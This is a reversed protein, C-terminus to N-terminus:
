EYIFLTELNVTSSSYHKDFTDKANKGLSESEEPSVTSIMKVIELASQCVIVDIGNKFETGEIVHPTTIICCGLRAGELLKNKFGSGYFIPLVLFQTRLLENTIDRVRGLIKVNSGVPIRFNSSGRGFLLGSTSINGKALEALFYRMGEANPSYEFNGYSVWEYDYTNRKRYEVSEVSRIRGLIKRGPAAFQFDYENVYVLCQYNELSLEWNKSLYYVWRTVLIDAINNPVLRYFELKSYNFRAISDQVYGVAFRRYEDPLYYTPLFLDTQIFDYFRAVRHVEKLWNLRGLFLPKFSLIAYIRDFLGIRPRRFYYVKFSGQSKPAFATSSAVLLAIEYVEKLAELQYLLRSDAGSDSSFDIARSSLVLLRKKEM